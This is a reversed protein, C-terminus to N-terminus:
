QGGVPLPTVEVPSAAELQELTPQQEDVLLPLTELTVDSDPDYVMVAVQDATAPVGTPIYPDADLVVTGSQTPLLEATM